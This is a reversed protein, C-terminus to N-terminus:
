DTRGSAPALQPEPRMPSLSFGTTIFAAFGALTTPVWLLLHTLIAFAMGDVKSAGFAVAAQMAFFHFTGVYGPSSPLLTSLTAAALAFYAGALGLPLGVAHAAVLFVGGEMIWIFVSLLVLGAMRAPRGVRVLTDVLTSFIHLAKAAPKSNRAMPWRALRITLTRELRPLLVLMVVIAAGAAAVFGAFRALSASNEFAPVVPLVLAFIGLLVFLDLLRELLLTGAVRGAELGSRGRFAFLRLVDGIRLPLVNNAAISILFPAATTRWRLEPATPRLMLWWRTIRASYGLMLCVLALPTLSWDARALVVSIESISLGRFALWVFVASVALGVAPKVLRAALPRTRLGEMPKALTMSETVVAEMAPDPVGM